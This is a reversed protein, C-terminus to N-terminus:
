PALGLHAGAHRDLGYHGSCFSLHGHRHAGPFGPLFGPGARSHHRRRDGSFQFSIGGGPQDRHGGPSQFQLLAERWRGDGSHALCSPQARPDGLSARSQPALLSLHGRRNFAAAFIGNFLHRPVASTNLAGLIAGPITAAAFILGSKYDIRKMFAYSQSGSLANFFVVALSIATLQDPNAEPHLMLLIPMLVFGGGAGILTGYAGVAVGLGILWFYEAPSVPGM